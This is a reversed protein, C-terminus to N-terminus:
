AWHVEQLECCESASRQNLWDRIIPLCVIKGAASCARSLTPIEIWDRAVVRSSVDARLRGRESSSLIHRVGSELAPQSSQRDNTLRTKKRHVGMDEPRPGAVGNSRTTVQSWWM